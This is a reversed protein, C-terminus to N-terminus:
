SIWNLSLEITDYRDRAWSLPYSLTLHFLSDQEQVVGWPLMIKTRPKGRRDGEKGISSHSSFARGSDEAKQRILMHSFIENKASICHVLCDRLSSGRENFFHRFM